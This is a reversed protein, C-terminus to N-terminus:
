WKTTGGDVLFDQGTVYRSASSALYIAAGAYDEPEGVIGLMTDQQWLEVIEPYDKTMTTLTYGPSISNVRIGRPGLEKALEPVMGKAASKTAAYVTSNHTRTATYAATSGIIILSKTRGCNGNVGSNDSNWGTMAQAALQCTFYVGKVNVAMLRDFDAEETEFFDKLLNIGAVAICIDLGHQGCFPKVTTAFAQKLASVSSVDVVQYAIRVGFQASLSRFEDSPPTIDFVAVDAGAQALGRSIGLGIGQNGGTVLAITGSLSFQVNDNMLVFSSSDADVTRPHTIGGMARLFM